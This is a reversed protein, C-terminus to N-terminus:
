CDGSRAGNARIICVASPAPQLVSRRVTYTGGRAISGTTMFDLGGQEKRSWQEPTRGALWSAAFLSLAVAIMGFLLTIRLIGIGARAAAGGRRRREPNWDSDLSM